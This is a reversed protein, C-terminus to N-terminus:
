YFSTKLERDRITLTQSKPETLSLPHHQRKYPPQNVIIDPTADLKSLIKAQETASENFLDNLYLRCLKVANIDKIVLWNWIHDPVRVGIGRM